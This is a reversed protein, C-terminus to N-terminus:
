HTKEQKKRWKQLTPLVNQALIKQGEATPHIGDAQNLKEHGAVGKLLSPVFLVQTEQAVRPYINAFDTTYKTGYNTPIHVGLLIVDINKKKCIAIMKKLNSEIIALPQGRMGDNAGLELIIADPRQKLIWDLRRLGGSTTDGSVGANIIQTPLKNKKLMQDLLNPFAEEKPLGMGASLSDGLVIVKPHEQLVEASTNLAPNKQSIPAEEACSLFFLLSFM